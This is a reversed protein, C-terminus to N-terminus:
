RQDGPEFPEPDLGRDCTMVTRGTGDAERALLAGVQTDVIALEAARGLKSAAAGHQLV